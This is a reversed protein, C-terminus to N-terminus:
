VNDKEGFKKKIQIAVIVVIVGVAILCILIIPNFGDEKTSVTNSMTGSVMDSETKSSKDVADDTTVLSDEYIIAYASFFETEFTFNWNEDLVGEIVEVVGDHLRVIFFTRTKTADTNRLSEPITITVSIKTGPESVKSASSNGVQKWLSLDIYFPQIGDDIIDKIKETIQAKDENSIDTAEKVELWIKAEEGNEIREKEEETLVGSAQMLEAKSTNMTTDPANEGVVADVSINQVMPNTDTTDFTNQKGETVNITPTTRQTPITVPAPTVADSPKKNGDNQSTSSSDSKDSSDSSGSSGGATPPNSAQNPMVFDEKIWSGGDYNAVRLTYSGGATLGTITGSFSNNTVTTSDVVAVNGDKDVVQVLVAFVDNNGITGSYTLTTNSTTNVTLEDAAFATMGWFLALVFVSIIGLIKKM